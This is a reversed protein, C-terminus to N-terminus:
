LADGTFRVSVALDLGPEEKPEPLEFEESLSERPVRESSVSISVSSSSSIVIRALLFALPL